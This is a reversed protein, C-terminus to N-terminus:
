KWTIHTYAYILLDILKWLALPVFVLICVWLFTFLGELNPFM